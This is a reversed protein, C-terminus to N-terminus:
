ETHLGGWTTGLQGESVFALCVSQTSVSLLPLLSSQDCRPHNRDRKVLDRM